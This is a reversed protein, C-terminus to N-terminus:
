ESFRYRHDSASGVIDAQGPLLTLLERHQKRCWYICLCRTATSDAKTGTACLDAPSVKNVLSILQQDM